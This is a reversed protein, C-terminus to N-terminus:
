KNKTWLKWDFEMPNELCVDKNCLFFLAYVLIPLFVVVALAGFPGGFEYEIKHMQKAGSTSENNAAHSKKPTESKSADKSTAAASTRKM